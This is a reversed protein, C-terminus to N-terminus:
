GGTTTPAEFPSRTRVTMTGAPLHFDIRAVLDYRPAIDRLALAVTHGPRLWWAAIAEVSVGRSRAILRQLIAEAVDDAQAQTTPVSRNETYVQLPVGTLQGAPDISTSWGQYPGGNIWARGVVLHDTGDNWAYRVEVVNAWRDAERSLDVDSGIVTGREGRTLTHDPTSALVPRPSLLWTRDGRDRLWAGVRDAWDVFTSWWGDEAIWALLPTGGSVTSILSTAVGTDPLRLAIADPPTHPLTPQNPNLEHGYDQVLAEDSALDLVMTSDPQRLTVKRLGLDVLQQLERTGSPWVYGARVRVRIGLRPDLAALTAADPIACTVSAQVHPSWAEDFTVTAQDAALRIAVTPTAPNYADVEFPQEHTGRIWQESSDAYPYAGTVV